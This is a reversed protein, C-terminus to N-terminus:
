APMHKALVGAMRNAWDIDNERRIWGHGEGAYAVWEVEVGNSRLADRMREGHVLPVRRDSTGYAMLVPVKFESARKLPSVSDLLAKDKEPDGLMVPITYREAVSGSTDGWAVTILGPDTVGIWNIACRWLKPDRIPGMMAAYGGYSAGAICLRAPDAIGEKVLHLAGDTIDDQMSLGWQKYSARHFKQGFGTSGRPAPMLVAYGRSALFQVLPDFRWGIARVWPGGYHMVILPLKEAKVGKPLTLMAPISLGDRATYRFFQTSAMEESPLWPRASGISVLGKTKQDYLFFSGAETDGSVTVLIKQAASKLNRSFGVTQNPFVQELGRQMADHEPSFWAIAPRSAEYRVGLVDGAENTIAGDIDFSKLAAVAEADIVGTKTNMSYLGRTDAGHANALVLLSGDPLVRVPDIPTELIDWRALSRWDQGEGDRFWLQFTREDRTVVVRAVDKDDILWTSADGPSGMTLLSNRGTKTNLRELRSNFRRQAGSSGVLVIIEDEATTRGKAFFGTGAPMLRKGESLFGREALEVYEGGDKNIAMLGSGLQDAAVRQLDTVGFVIRQSNIWRPAVVDGDSFNTIQTTKNSALDIVILNRRGNAAFRLALLAKGDPSLAVGSLQPPRYFQETPRLAAESKAFSPVSPMLAVAATGKLVKRRQVSSM